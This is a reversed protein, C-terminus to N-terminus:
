DSWHFWADFVRFPPDGLNTDIELAPDILGDLIEAPLVVIGNENLVAEVTRGLEGWEVHQNTLYEGQSPLSGSISGVHSPSGICAIPALRCLLVDLGAVGESFGCRELALARLIPDRPSVFAAIFSAYGSGYSGTEVREVKIEPSNAMVDVVTLLFPDIDSRRDKGAWEDQPEHKVAGAVARPEAALTQLYRWRATHKSM